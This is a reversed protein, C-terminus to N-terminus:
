KEMLMRKLRTSDAIMGPNSRMDPKEGTYYNQHTTVFRRNHVCFRDLFQITSCNRPWWLWLFVRRFLRFMM